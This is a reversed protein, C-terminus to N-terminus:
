SALGDFMSIQGTSPTDAHSKKLLERIRNETINYKRAIHRISATTGDFESLAKKREIKYFPKSPVQIVVGTFEKMLSIAVDKGCMEYIEKFVENPMDDVTVDDIDFNVFMTEIIKGM